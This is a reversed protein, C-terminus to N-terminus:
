VGRSRARNANIAVLTQCMVMTAYAIKVHALDDRIISSAQPEAKAEVEAEVEAEQAQALDDAL